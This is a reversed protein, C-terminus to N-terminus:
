LRIPDGDLIHDTSSTSDKHLVHSDLMFPYWTGELTVPLANLVDDSLNPCGFLYDNEAYNAVM